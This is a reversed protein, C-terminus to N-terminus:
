FLTPTEIDPGFWQCMKEIAQRKINPTVCEWVAKVCAILAAADDTFGVLPTIDPILDLPLIFYGLAGVIITKHQKPTNEDKLVYYLLLAAYIVKTGAKMAVKAIKDWLGSESYHEQYQQIDKPEKANM